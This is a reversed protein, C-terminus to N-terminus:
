DGILEMHRDKNNVLIPNLRLLCRWFTQLSDVRVNFTQFFLCNDAVLCLLSQESQLLGQGYGFKVNILLVCIFLLQQNIGLLAM